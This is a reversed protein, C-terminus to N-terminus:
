LKGAAVDGISEAGNRRVWRLPRSDHYSGSLVLKEDVCIDHEADGGTNTDMATHGVSTNVKEAPGSDSWCRFPDIIVEKSAYETLMDGLVVSATFNRM